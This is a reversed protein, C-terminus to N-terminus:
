LNTPADSINHILLLQVCWAHYVSLGITWGFFLLTRLAYIWAFPFYASLRQQERTERIIILVIYIEICNFSIKFRSIVRLLEKQLLQLLCNEVVTWYKLNCGASYSYLFRCRIILICPIIVIMIKKFKWNNISHEKYLIFNRKGSM